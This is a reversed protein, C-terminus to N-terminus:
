DVESVFVGLLKGVRDLEEQLPTTEDPTERLMNAIRGMLAAVASEAPSKQLYGMAANLLVITFMVIAEYPLATEREILWVDDDRYHHDPRADQQIM